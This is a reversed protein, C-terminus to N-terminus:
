RKKTGGNNEKGRDEINHEEIVLPIESKREMMKFFAEWTKDDLDMINKPPSLARARQLCQQSRMARFYFISAHFGQM